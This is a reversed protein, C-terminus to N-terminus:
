KTCIFQLTRPGDIAELTAIDPMGMNKRDCRIEVTRFSERIESLLLPLTLPTFEVLAYPLRDGHRVYAVIILDPTICVPFNSITGPFLVRNGADASPGARLFDLARTRLEDRNALMQHFNRMDIVFVKQTVDAFNELCLKRQAPDSIHSLSNGMCFGADFVSGGFSASLLQWPHRTYEPSPFKKEEQVIKMNRMGQELLADDLENSVLRRLTIEHRAAAGLLYLIDYQCGSCTDLASQCDYTRMLDVLFSGNQRPDVGDFLKQLDGPNGMGVLDNYNKAFIDAYTSRQSGHSQTVMTVNEAALSLEMGLWEGAQQLQRMGAASEAPLTM